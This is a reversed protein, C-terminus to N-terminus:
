PWRRLIDLVTDGLDRAKLEPCLLRGAELLGALSGVLATRSDTPADLTRRWLLGALHTAAGTEISLAIITKSCNELLGGDSIIEIAQELESPTSALAKLIRQAADAKWADNGTWSRSGPGIQTLRRSAIAVVKHLAQILQAPSASSHNLLLELTPRVKWDPHEVTDALERARQWKGLMCLRAVLLTVAKGYAQPSCALSTTEQVARDLDEGNLIPAIAGLAAACQDSYKLENLHDLVWGVEGGSLLSSLSGLLDDRSPGFFGWEFAEAAGRFTIAIVDQRDAIHPDLELLSIGLAARKELMDRAQFAANLHDFALKRLPPGGVRDLADWVARREAAEHFNEIATHLLRLIDEIPPDRGLDAASDFLSVIQKVTIGSARAALTTLADYARARVDRVRAELLPTLLSFAESESTGPASAVRFM